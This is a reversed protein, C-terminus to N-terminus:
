EIDLKGNNILLQGNNINFSATPNTAGGATYTAYM